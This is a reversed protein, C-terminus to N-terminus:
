RPRRAATCCRRPAQLGRTSTTVPPGWWLATAHGIWVVGWHVLVHPRACHSREAGEVPPRVREGGARTLACATSYERRRLWMVAIMAPLMANMEMAGVAGSHIVSCWFLVMAAVAPVFTGGAIEACMHAGVDGLGAIVAGAFAQPDVVAVGRGAPRVPGRCARRWRRGTSVASHRRPSTRRRGTSRRM